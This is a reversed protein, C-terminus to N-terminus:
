EHDRVHVLDRAFRCGSYEVNRGARNRRMRERNEAIMLVDHGGSLGAPREKGRVINLFDHVEREDGVGGSELRANWEEVEEFAKARRV